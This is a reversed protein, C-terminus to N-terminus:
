TDTKGSLAANVSEYPGADESAPINGSELTRSQGDPPCRRVVQLSLREPLEVEGAVPEALAWECRASGAWCCRLGSGLCVSHM